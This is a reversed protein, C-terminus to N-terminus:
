LKRPYFNSELQFKRETQTLRINKYSTHKKKYVTDCSYHFCSTEIHCWEILKQKWNAFSINGYRICKSSHLTKVNM